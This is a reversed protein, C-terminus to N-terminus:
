VSDGGKDDDQAADVLPANDPADATVERKSTPTDFPVMSIPRETISRKINKIRRENAKILKDCCDVMFDSLTKESLFALIELGRKMEPSCRFNIAASNDAAKKRAM